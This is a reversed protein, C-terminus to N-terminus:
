ASSSSTGNRCTKKAMQHAHTLKVQNADDNSVSSTGKRRSVKTWIAPTSTRAAPTGAANAPPSKLATVPPYTIM